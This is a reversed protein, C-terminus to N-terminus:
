AGREPPFVFPLVNAALYAGYIFMPVTFMWSEPLFGRSQIALYALFYFYVVANKGHRSDLLALQSSLFIKGRLADHLEIIAKQNLVFAPVGALAGVLYAVLACILATKAFSPAWAHGVFILWCPLALLLIGLGVNIGRNLAGRLAM